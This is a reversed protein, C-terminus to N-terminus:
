DSQLNFDDPSNKFTIKGSSWGQSESETPPHPKPVPTKLLERLSPIESRYGIQSVVKKLHSWDLQRLQTDKKKAQSLM